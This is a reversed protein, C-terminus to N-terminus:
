LIKGGKIINEKAWLPQLNTYNCVKLVQERDTLNFSALPTIHDIHWGYFGYNEWSMMEGTEKNIYFMSELRQKLEVITCGLDRVASGFKYNNKVANHLRTRLNCAIRYNLDNKRRWCKYETIKKKNNERYKKSKKNLRDRNNERFNKSQKQHCEKCYFRKGDKFRKSNSFLNILRVLECGKCFKETIESYM